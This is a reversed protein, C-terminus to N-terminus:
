GFVVRACSPARRRSGRIGSRPPCSCEGPRPSSPRPRRLATPEMHLTGRRSRRRMLASPGPWPHYTPPRVIPRSPTGGRRPRRWAPTTLPPPADITVFETYTYVQRMVVASTEGNNGKNIVNISPLKKSLNTVWDVSYTGETLSDGICCITPNSM